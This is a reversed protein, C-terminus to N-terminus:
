RSCRVMGDIMGCSLVGFIGFGSALWVATWYVMFEVGYEAIMVKAKYKHSTVSGDLTARRHTLARIQEDLEKLQAKQTTKATSHHIPPHPQTTATPPATSAVTHSSSVTNSADSSRARAGVPSTSFRHPTCAPLFPNHMHM